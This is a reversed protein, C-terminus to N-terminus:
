QELPKIRTVPIIPKTRETPILYRARKLNSPTPTYGEPFFVLGFAGKSNSTATNLTADMVGTAGANVVLDGSWGSLSGAAGYLGTHREDYTGPVTPDTWTKGTQCSGVWVLPSNNATVTLSPVRVATDNTNYLLNGVQDVLYGETTCFGGRYTGIWGATQVYLSWDWTYNAGESAAIKTYVWRTYDNDNSQYGRLDWGAPTNTIAEPNSRTIFAVMLDGDATDTPKNITMSQRNTGAGNATDNIFTWAM